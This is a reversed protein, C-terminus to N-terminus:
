RYVIAALASLVRFSVSLRGPERRTLDNFVNQTLPATCTPPESCRNNRAGEVVVLRDVPGAPSLVPRRLGWSAAAPGHRHREQATLNLIKSLVHVARFRVKLSMVDASLNFEAPPSAGVTLM